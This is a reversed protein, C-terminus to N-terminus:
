QHNELQKILVKFDKPYTAEVKIKEGKLSMFELNTAHLAFRNILPREETWKKLNYGRKIGSLYFPKGGYQTDGSISASLQSLHVRIQHMRGSVPKCSVLTHLKYAKITNFITKAEKGKRDVRVTGNGLKLIPAEVIENEFDHIGDVVAHYM